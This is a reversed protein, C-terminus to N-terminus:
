GSKGGGLMRVRYDIGYDTNGQGDKEIKELM